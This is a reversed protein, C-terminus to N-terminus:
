FNSGYFTANNASVAVEYDIYPDKSTGTNNEFYMGNVGLHDTPAQDKLDYDFNVLAVYFDNDSSMDSKAQDNLTIDNYGTSSWTSIEGSYKTVADELDCGGSGNVGAVSWGFINGYDITSLTSIGAKAKLAILDGTIGGVGRVKFTANDITGSVGSTDFHFFARYINYASGGGRTATVTAAVASTAISALNQAYTGSIAARANYWSSQSTRQVVGDYQAYVTAM